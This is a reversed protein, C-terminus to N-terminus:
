IFVKSYRHIIKKNIILRENGSLMQSDRTFRNLEGKIRRRIQLKKSITRMMLKNICYDWSCLLCLM